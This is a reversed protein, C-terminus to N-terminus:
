PTVTAPRGVAARVTSRGASPLNRSFLALSFFLIPFVSKVAWVTYHLEMILATLWVCAALEIMQRRRVGEHEDKRLPSVIVRIGSTILVAIGSIATLSFPVGFRALTEVWGIDGGKTIGYSAFGDGWLFTAPFDNLHEVYGRINRMTIEAMTLDAGGTGLALNTQGSFNNIVFEAMVDGVAWLVSVGVLTVLIGLWAVDSALRASLRGRLVGLGGFEFVSLVVTFAVIATFNLGTVLMIGFVFVAARRALRGDLPLLALAALVGFIVWAGSVSHSELLGYSRFGEAIRADNLGDGAAGARNLSYQFAQRSYASVRGLALKGYSDYAFYAGALFGAAVMARLVSRIDKESARDRFYRYWIVPFIFNVVSSMAEGSSIAGAATQWGNDFLVLAVYVTILRAINRSRRTEPPRLSRPVPFVYNLALIVGIVGYALLAPYPTNTLVQMPFSLAVLLTACFWLVSKLSSIRISM